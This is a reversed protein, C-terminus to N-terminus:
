VSGCFDGKFFFTAGFYFKFDWHLKLLLTGKELRVSFVSLNKEQLIIRFM